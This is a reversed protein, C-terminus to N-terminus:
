KSCTLLHMANKRFIYLVNQEREQMQCNIVVAPVNQIYETNQAPPTMNTMVITGSVLPRSRFLMALNNALLSEAVFKWGCGGCDGVGGGGYGAFSVDFSRCSVVVSSSVVLNYIM